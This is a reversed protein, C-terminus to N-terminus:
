LPNGMCLIMLRSGEDRISRLIEMESQPHQQAQRLTRCRSNRTLHSPMKLCSKFHKSIPIRKMVRYLFFPLIKRLRLVSHIKMNFDLLNQSKHVKWIEQRIKSTSDEKRFIVAM